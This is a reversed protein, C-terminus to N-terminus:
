EGAYDIHNWALGRSINGITSRSVGFLQAIEPITLQQEFLLKKIEMVQNETFRSKGAGKVNSGKAQKNRRRQNLGNEVKTGLFLHEPNICLSDQCKHYVCLGKPIEENKYVEYAIRTLKFNKNNISIAQIKCRGVNCIKYNTIWCDNKSVIHSEIRKQLSLRQNADM